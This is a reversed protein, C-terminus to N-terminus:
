ERLTTSLSDLFPLYGRLSALTHCFVAIEGVLFCLPPPPTIKSHPLFNQKTNFHSVNYNKM